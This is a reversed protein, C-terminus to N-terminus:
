IHKNYFENSKQYILRHIKALVQKEVVSVVKSTEVKVVNQNLAAVITKLHVM